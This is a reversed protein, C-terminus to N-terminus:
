RSVKSLSFYFTSGIGENSEAWIRGRYREIIRKCIALGLGTGPYEENRHLRKFLGFIREAHEQDFGIGNDKVNVVWYGGADQAGIQIRCAVDPKAYKLANSLLNQFVHALQEEDGVVIPLADYTVKAQNEQVRVDVRMLAQRLAANLDAGEREPSDEIHNARSYTLLGRILSEMRKVGSNVYVAYQRMEPDAQPGLRRLLLQVYINVMRLPEQLDHSAVYAFEELERNARELDQRALVQVTVDTLVTIVGSVRGNLERLPNCVVNFWHDDPVGNGDPDYSVPWEIAVFPEGTELVGRLADWVHQGLDPAVETLREGILKNRKLMSLLPPNALEIAFDSGRLVLVAVPAQAFVQQLLEESKRLAEEFRKRETTDEIIAIIQKAEGRRDFRMTGSARCWVLQGDKRFYRKEIVATTQKGSKLLDCFQRSLAIDDPHTFGASDGSALAERDFGLMDLYAQNAELFEGDPTCLVMGVPAQAFAASFREESERLAAEGKTRESIDRTSGAVAEVAGDSGFVPVFIYDYQGVYGNAGTCPTEDRIVQKTAVVEKVQRDLRAALEPPYDLEFFSKGVTEDMSKGWNSLLARNAYTLRGDLDFICTFDPTHSLATDFTHRQQRLEQEARKRATIDQAVGAVRHIEGAANRVPFARDGIWREEGDPRILRYEVNYQGEPMSRDLEQRVREADDPHILRNWAEADNFFANKPLGSITSYSPSAYLVRTRPYDTLWFVDTVNEALLRLREESQHLEDETLRREEDLRKIEAIERGRLFLESQIQEARLREVNMLHSQEAEHRKLQVLETVDEVRLLIFRIGGDNHPVPSNLLSWYREELEGSERHPGPLNYQQVPIGDPEGTALVRHFSRRLSDLTTSHTPDPGEFVQFISRGIVEERSKKAARLYSDSAAAVTFAPADPLVVACQWPAAEFLMRFDIENPLLAGPGGVTM